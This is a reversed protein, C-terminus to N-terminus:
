ATKNILLTPLLCYATPLLCFHESAALSLKKLKGPAIARVDQLVSDPELFELNYIERQRGHPDVLFIRSPHDLVGGPGIKAWMGWAAIVAEVQAPPGTLFHWPALDAGFTKAYRALVEPTDSKPDLTISM